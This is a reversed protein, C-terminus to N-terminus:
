VGYQARFRAADAPTLPASSSFVIRLASLDVHGRLPTQGLIAFIQPVAGLFTIREATLLTTVERRRFEAVPLLTAGSYLCTLMTRVLGNVHFFPAIGLFRDTETVAFTHRLCELEALLQAHGRVVRKPKGTSGSTYLQLVPLGGATPLAEGTTTGPRLPRAGHEESVEFTAPARPLREVTAAARALTATDGLLAVADLDSLHSTLDHSGSGPNVPAVVAGARAVAFFAAAFAAANPMMVAVRQGPAQVVSALARSIRVSWALLQGYTVDCGGERVAVRGAQRASLADFAEALTAHSSM